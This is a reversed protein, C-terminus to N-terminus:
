NDFFFSFYPSRVLFDVAYVIVLFPECLTEEHAVQAEEMVDDTQGFFDVM